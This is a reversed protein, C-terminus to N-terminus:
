INRFARDIIVAWVNADFWGELHEKKLAEEQDEYETLFHRMVNEAWETDFHRSRNYPEDENRYSTTELVKRPDVTTRVNRFRALSRVVYEDVKPQICVARKIERWEETTFLKETEVDGLDITWSHLMSEVPLRSGERILVDEVCTGSSLVWKMRAHSEAFYKLQSPLMPLSLPELKEDTDSSNCSFPVSPTYESGDDSGLDESEILFDEDQDAAKNSEKSVLFPNDVNDATLERNKGIAPFSAVCKLRMKNQISHAENGVNFNEVAFQAAAEQLKLQVNEINIHNWIKKVPESQRKSFYPNM